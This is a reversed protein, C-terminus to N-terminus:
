QGDSYVANSYPPVDNSDWDCVCIRFWGHDGSCDRNGAALDWGDFTHSEWTIGDASHYINIGDYPSTFNLTWVLHGHGDSTLLIAPVASAARARRRKQEELALWVRRQGVALVAVSQVPKPSTPIPPVDAPPLDPVSLPRRKRRIIPYLKDM